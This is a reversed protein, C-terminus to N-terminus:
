LLTAAGWMRHHPMMVTLARTTSGLAFSSGSAPSCGRATVIGPCNDTGLTAAAFTAPAGSSGTCETIANAPCTISPATKDVVTVTGTCSTPGGCSNKPTVNLTVQTMGESYPGAPSQALTVTSDNLLAATAISATAKCSSDANVTPSVCQATTSSGSGSTPNAKEWVKIYGEASQFLADHYKPTSLGVNLLDAVMDPLLGVHALGDVNFDFSKKGTVQRDFTGFGALTFPYQLKSGERLQVLHSLHQLDDGLGGCADSGFRPGIHGAIGNFDSGFAVPGGMKDVAYQFADALTKTSHLCNQPVTGNQYPVTAVKGKNGTDQVDDKLMVTIMGGVNKIRTLQQSTRLREHRGANDGNIYTQKHLDYFLVHSAVVPYNNTEAWDLTTDLSHNSMHDIDIIMGKQKLKNLLASGLSTLGLAHCSIQGSPYGPDELGGFGLLNIFFQTLNSFKFGYGKSSCDEVSWWHGTAVRNGVNIGDQWAAPSGFQNDFNHIPFFHRVGKDYYKDLADSVTQETCPHTDYRCGLPNDVEIGLVVALKGAAIATRAEAPTRVIKFWKKSDDGGAQTNINDEFRYAAQLQAEIPPLPLTPLTEGPKLQFRDDFKDLESLRSPPLMSNECDTGHKSKCLSENTVALLVMLRLGGRYARELWKYYMQQHTTSRWTPWDTFYPAGFNNFSSDQTGIGLSDQLLSKGILHLGHMSLDDAPSLAGAVSRTPDYAKGALIQGGHALEGFMHAHMDAYGSLACAPGSSSATWNTSPEAISNLSASSLDVCTSISSIHLPNAAGGCLCDGSCSDGLVPVGLLETLGDACAPDFLTPRDPQGICRGRQGDGGSPTAKICSSVSQVSNHNDPNGGCLCDGVCGNVETLGSSCPPGAEAQGICCAREGEGGCHSPRVCHSVASVPIGLIDGCVCGNPDNCGNVEVLGFGCPTPAEGIGICCARTGDLGCVGAEASSSNMLIFLVLVVFAGTLLGVRTLWYSYNNCKKM